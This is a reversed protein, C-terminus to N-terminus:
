GPGNLAAELKDLLDGLRYANKFVAKDEGPIIGPPIAGRWLGNLTVEVEPHAKRFELLRPVQDPEAAADRLSGSMIGVM